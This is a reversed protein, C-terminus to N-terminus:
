VLRGLLKYEVIEIDTLKRVRPATELIQFNRGGSLRLVYGSDSVSDVVWVAEGDAPAPNYQLIVYDGAKIM